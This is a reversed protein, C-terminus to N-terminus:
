LEPRARRSALRPRAPLRARGLHARGHAYRGDGRRACDEESAPVDAGTTTLAPGPLAFSRVGGAAAVLSRKVEPLGFRSSKSAVIIDCALCIECGGALAPGDVCAVMPKLRPYSVIGAFGGKATQVSEGKNISKLDAGACFVKAVHVSLLSADAASCPRVLARNSSKVVGVWLDDDAEFADLAKEFAESLDRNVANMDQPRNLTFVCVHGQKEVLIPKAAM